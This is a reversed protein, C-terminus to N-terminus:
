SGPITVIVDDIYWGSWVEAGNSTFVFELKINKGFAAAPLPFSESAWGTFVGEIGTVLQVLLTDSNDADLVNITGVDGGLDTDAFHRFSLTAVT